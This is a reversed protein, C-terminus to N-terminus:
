PRLVIKGCQAGAEMRAFAEGAAALPHVEGVLPRLRHREVLALLGRWDAPSGM